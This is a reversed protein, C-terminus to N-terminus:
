GIIPCFYFRNSPEPGKGVCLSYLKHVSEVRQSRRYPNKQAPGILRLCCIHLRNVVIRRTRRRAGLPDMCPDRRLPGATSHPSSSRASTKAFGIIRCALLDSVTRVRASCSGPPNSPACSNKLPQLSIRCARLLLACLFSTVSDCVLPAFVPLAIGFARLCDQRATGSSYAGAADVLYDAHLSPIGRDFVTSFRDSAYSRFGSPTMWASLLRFCM